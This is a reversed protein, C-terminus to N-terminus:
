SPTSRTRTLAQAVAAASPVRPVDPHMGQYQDFPDILAHRVGAARAGLIDTLFTDGLHLAQHKGLGFHGLAMEFIRPDPKEIGVVGSDLLLDLQARVPMSAFLQELMGESNSILVTKGGKARFAALAAPLEAPVQNWLNLEAHELWVANLVSTLASTPVGADRLLTAMNLGWHRAGPLGEFAFPVETVDGREAARKAYGESAKLQEAGAPFGCATVVRALRAHDLFIVVNGADLCLLEVGATLELMTEASSPTLAPDNM